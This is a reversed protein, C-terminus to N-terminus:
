SATTLRPKLQESIEDAKSKVDNTNIDFANLIIRQNKTVAHDLRYVGDAGRLMEIKELERIAAAVNMFNPRSDMEEAADKIKTYMRNRIILSVFGILLKGGLGEETQVREAKGGLFSKDARFLKESADRSKYLELAERATMEASSIICFYGCLSLEEEVVEEREYATVFCQDKKGENYYEPRYSTVQLSTSLSEIDNM